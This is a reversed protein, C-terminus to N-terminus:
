PARICPWATTKKSPRHAPAHRAGAARCAPPTFTDLVHDGASDALTITVTVPDLNGWVTLSLTLGGDNPLAIQQEIAGAAGGPVDVYVSPNGAAEANCWPAASIVFHPYGSFSGADEAVQTWGALGECFDGNQVLGTDTAGVCAAGDGADGADGTDLLATAEAGADTVTTADLRGEAITADGTAGAEGGADGASAKQDAAADLLADAAGDALGRERWSV